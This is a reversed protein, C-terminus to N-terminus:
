EQNVPLGKQKGPKRDRIKQETLIIGGVIGKL